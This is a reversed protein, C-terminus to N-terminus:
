FGSEGGAARPEKGVLQHSAGLARQGDAGTKAHEDSLGTAWRWLAADGLPAYLAGHELAALAALASLLALATAEFGGAPAAHASIFLLAALLVIAIIAPGAARSAGYGFFSTLYALHDPLFGRNVRPAGFFILLKASLRMAWLLAFMWAAMSNPSGATLVLLLAGQAALLLEHHRLADWAGKFRTKLSAGEPCVTKTPGSVYGLLFLVEHWAWCALGAAFGAYAGAVDARDQLQIAALVGGVGVISAAVATASYTKPRRGILWLVVGTSLWWAFAAVALPVFLASDFSM